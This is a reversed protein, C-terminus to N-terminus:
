RNKQALLASRLRDAFNLRSVVKAFGCRKM